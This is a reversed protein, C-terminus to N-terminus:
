SKGGRIVRLRPRPERRMQELEEVLQEAARRMFVDAVHRLLHYAVDWGLSQAGVARM